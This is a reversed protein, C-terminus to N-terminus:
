FNIRKKTGREFNGHVFDQFIGYDKEYERFKKTKLHCVVCCVSAPIM